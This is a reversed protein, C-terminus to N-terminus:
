GTPWRLDVITPSLAQLQSMKSDSSQERPAALTFSCLRTPPFPLIARTLSVEDVSAGPRKVPVRCCRSVTMGPVGDGECRGSRRTPVAPPSCRIAFVGTQKVHGGVSTGDRCATVPSLIQLHMHLVGRAEVNHSKSVEEGNSLYRVRSFNYPTIYEMLSAWFTEMTSVKDDFLRGYQAGLWRAEINRTSCHCCVDARLAPVRPHRASLIRRSDYMLQVVAREKRANYLHLLVALEGDAGSSRRRISTDPYETVFRTVPLNCIKCGIPGVTDGEIVTGTQRRVRAHARVSMVIQFSGDDPWYDHCRPQEAHRLVPPNQSMRQPRTSSSKWNRMVSKAPEIISPTDPAANSSTRYQKGRGISSGEVM